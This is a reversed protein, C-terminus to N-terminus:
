GRVGGTVSVDDVAERGEFRWTCGTWEYVARWHGPECERPKYVVQRPTGDAVFSVSYEHDSM